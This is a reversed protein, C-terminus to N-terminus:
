FRIDAFFLAVFFAIVAAFGWGVIAVEYSNRYLLVPLVICVLMLIRTVTNYIAVYKTNKNVIYIGELGLTPLTFFPFPSFLKLGKVLEPNNLFQAIPEASFFLTISLLGGSFFLIQNIKKVIYKGEALSYRPLFYSFVSPLGAEFIVLLTSYVFMIQKYTGYEAKDFFRSLIAASVLSVFINSISSIGLWFAQHINSKNNMM